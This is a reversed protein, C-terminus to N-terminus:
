ALGLRKGSQYVAVIYNHQTDDLLTMDNVTGASIIQAIEREVIKGPEPDSTQEAIAVRKGAQIVKAIYGQAAHHPIGCMPTDHRKTLAVNLIGSAIKADEFFMEYFDGLRFFLLIDDPLSRRIKQYQEMM